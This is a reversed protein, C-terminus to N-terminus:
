QSQQRTKILWIQTALLLLLAVANHLVALSIPLYWWVNLVGLLVQLVLLFAVLAPWVKSVKHTSFGVILLWTFYGTVVFAGYRHMMQIAVRAGHSLIGGQYNLGSQPLTLFAAHMDMNPFLSGECLPFTSCVAGSYTASTWGGLIIQAMLLAVGIRMSLIMKNISPKFILRPQILDFLLWAMIATLSIGGVLHGMVVMPHLKMTVTWMGLLGQFLVLAILAGYLVKKFWQNEQRLMFGSLLLIISGFISAAYRHIMELWAKYPTVPVDMSYHKLAQHLEQGSMPATIAGFCGPWDPCGLGADNIRTFAGLIVTFIGWLVLGSLIKIQLQQRM